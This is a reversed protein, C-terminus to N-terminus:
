LCIHALLKQYKKEGIGSVKRLDELKRFGGNSSRYQTIRSALNPGIGPIKELEETNARNISIKNGVSNPTAGVSKGKNAGADGEGSGGGIDGQSRDSILKELDGQGPAPIVVKEGDRLVRALNIGPLDAPPKIGGAAKIADELHAQPKLKVVGPKQVQGVIHVYIEEGGNASLSGSNDGSEISSSSPSSNKQQAVKQNTLKITELRNQQQLYVGFAILLVVMVLALLLKSDPLFSKIGEVIGRPKEDTRKTKITTSAPSPDSAKSKQRNPLPKGLISHQNDEDVKEAILPAKGEIIRRGCLELQARSILTSKEPNDGSEPNVERHAFQKAIKAVETDHSTVATDLKPVSNKDLKRVQGILTKELELTDLSALKRNVRDIGKKASSVRSLGIRKSM